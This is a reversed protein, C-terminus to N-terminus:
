GPFYVEMSKRDLTQMGHKEFDQEACIRQIETEYVSLENSKKM